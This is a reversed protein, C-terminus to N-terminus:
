GVNWLLAKGYAKRGVNNWWRFAKLDYYKNCPFPPSPGPSAEDAYGYGEDVLVMTVRSRICPGMLDPGAGMQEGYARIYKLVALKPRSYGLHVILWGSWGSKMAGVYVGAAITASSASIVIAPVDPLKTRAFEAATETVTEPLKLANPMMYWEEAMGVNAALDKRAQHYLIASRGAELGILSAGLAEARIQPERLVDGWTGRGTPNWDLGVARDAKRVPYYVVCHKGLIKCAQATAWGGQSHSTDLVGIVEESRAKIHAFVGRCKSFHPGPPCCLDERKVFLGFESVHDEVPTGLVCM